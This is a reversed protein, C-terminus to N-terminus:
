IGRNVGLEPSQVNTQYDNIDTKYVTLNVTFNDAPTTKIGLEMHKVDEPKIVALDTAPQGSITPLGAVNVGVPKFSTSYTAYGNIRANAKYAITINYTLNDEDADAVYSKTAISQIKLVKCCYRTPKQGSYTATDLGGYTQRDYYVDKEDYNFRVGPMVHLGKVIEWDVNAFVAASKSKISASTRIGYGEFSWPNGCRVPQVRPFAGNLTALNRQEM